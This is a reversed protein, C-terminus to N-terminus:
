YSGVKGYTQHRELLLIIKQDGIEIPYYYEYTDKMFASEFLPTVEKGEFFDTIWACTTVSNCKYLADSDNSGWNASYSGAYDYVTKGLVKKSWIINASPINPKQSEIIKLASSINKWASYKIKHNEDETNPIQQAIKKFLDTNENIITQSQALFINKFKQKSYITGAITVSIGLISILVTFIIWKRFSSHQQNRILSEGNTQLNVTAILSVNSAINLVLLLACLGIGGMFAALLAVTTKENFPVFQLVGTMVMVIVSAITCCAIFMIGTLTWRSVDSYTKININKM